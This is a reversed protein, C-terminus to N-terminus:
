IYWDGVQYSDCYEENGCDYCKMLTLDYAGGAEGINASECEPCSPTGARPNIIKEYVRQM